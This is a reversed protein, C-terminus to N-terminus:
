IFIASYKHKKQDLKLRFADLKNKERQYKQFKLELDVNKNRELNDDVLEHIHGKIEQVTRKQPPM